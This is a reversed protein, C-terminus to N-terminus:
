RTTRLRTDITPIKRNNKTTARTETEEGLTRSTSKTSRKTRSVYIGERGRRIDGRTDESMTETIQTRMVLTQIQKRGEQQIQELKGKSTSTSNNCISYTESDKKNM